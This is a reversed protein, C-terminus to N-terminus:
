NEAHAGNGHPDNGDTCKWSDGASDCFDIVIINDTKCGEPKAGQDKQIKILRVPQADGQPGKHTFNGAAALVQGNCCAVMPVSVSQKGAKAMTFEVDSVAAVRPISIRDGISLEFPIPKDSEAHKFGTPVPTSAVSCVRYPNDKGDRTTTGLVADDGPTLPSYGVKCCSGFALLLPVLMVTRINM